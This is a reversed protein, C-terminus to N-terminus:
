AAANESMQELARQHLTQVWRLTYGLDYATEAMTFNTLYRYVLITRYIPLEVYTDIAERIERHAALLEQIENQLLSNHETIELAIKETKNSPLSSRASAHQLKNTLDTARENWSAIQRKRLAIRAEILIGKELFEKPETRILEISEISLAM